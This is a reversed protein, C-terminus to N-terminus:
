AGSGKIGGENLARSEEVSWYKKRETKKKANWHTEYKLKLRIKCLTPKQGDM